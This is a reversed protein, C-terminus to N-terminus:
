WHVDINMIRRVKANLAKLDDSDEFIERPLHGRSLPGAGHVVDDYASSFAAGLVLDTAEDTNIRDAPRIVRGNRTVLIQPFFWWPYDRSQGDVLRIVDASSCLLGFYAIFGLDQIREEKLKEACLLAMGPIREVFGRDPEVVEMLSSDRSVVTDVSGMRVDTMEAVERYFEFAAEASPRGDAPSFDFSVKSSRLAYAAMLFRYPPFLELWHLSTVGLSLGPVPPNLAFDILTMVEPVSLRRGTMRCAVRYPEGYEGDFSIKHVKRLSYDIIGPYPGELMCSEDLMAGCEFLLRTSIPEEGGLLPRLGRVVVHDSSDKPLMQMKQRQFWVTDLAGSVSASEEALDLEMWSLPIDGFLLGYTRYLSQWKLSMWEMDIGFRRVLNGSEHSFIRLGDARAQEFTALEAKDLNIMVNEALCDRTLRLLTLLIGVTSGHYRVWHSVEHRHRINWSIFSTLRNSPDGRMGQLFLMQSRLDLRDGESNHLSTL